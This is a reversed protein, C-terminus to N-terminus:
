ESSLSALGGDDVGILREQFCSIPIPYAAISCKVCVDSRPQGTLVDRELPGGCSVCRATEKKMLQFLDLDGTDPMYSIYGACYILVKKWYASKLGLVAELISTVNYSHTAVLKVVSGRLVPSFEVEVGQVRSDSFDEEFYRFTDKSVMKRLRIKVGKGKVRKEFYNSVATRLVSYSVVSAQVFVGYVAYQVDNRVAKMETELRLNKVQCNTLLQNVEPISARLEDESIYHCLAFDMLNHGYVWDKQGASEAGTRVHGVVDVYAEKFGPVVKMFASALYHSYCGKNVFRFIPDPVDIEIRLQYMKERAAAIREIEEVSVPPAVKRNVIAQVLAKIPKGVKDVDCTSCSSGAHCDGRQTPTTLCYPIPVYSRAKLYGTWLTLKPNSYAHVEWPFIYDFTKESVLVDLNVNPIEKIRQLWRYWTGNPVRGVFRYKDQFYARLLLSFAPRGVMGIFNSLLIEEGSIAMRKGWNLLRAKHFVKDLNRNGYNTYGRVEAFQLTTSASPLLSTNHSVLGDAIYTNGDPVVLDYTLTDKEYEIAVVTIPTNWSASLPETTMKKKKSASLFGITTAYVAQSEPNNVITRFCFKSKVTEVVAGIGCSELLRAVDLAVFKSNVEVYSIGLDPDTDGASEFFGQLYARRIELKQGFIESPILGTSTRGGGYFRSIGNAVNVSYKDSLFERFDTVEGFATRNGAAAIFGLAIAVDQNWQVGQNGNEGGEILLTPSMLADGVQLKKAPVWEGNARRFKHKPTCTVNRGNSLILRITEAKGNCYLQTADKLEGHENFVRVGVLPKYEGPVMLRDSDFSGIPVYGNSTLVRTDHSVCFSIRIFCKNGMEEKIRQVKEAFHCWEDIDADTELMTIIYYLKIERAGQVMMERIVKLIEWERLNKNLYARQRESIGEVGLTFNSKKLYRQVHIQEPTEALMDVRQSILGVQYGRRVSEKVLPFLDTYQNFNLSFFSVHKTGLNTTAVELAELVKDVGRERYPGESGERCFGCAGLGQSGICGVSNHVLLGGAVYNEQDRVKLDYAMFRGSFTISSVEVAAWGDQFRGYSGEARISYTELREQKYKTSFGVLDRFKLWSGQGVLVVRYSEKCLYSSGGKLHEKQDVGFHSYIGLDLLLKQVVLMLKRNTSAISIAAQSGKTVSGDGTFLGRLYAAKSAETSALIVKAPEERCKLGLAKLFDRLTRSCVEQYFYGSRQHREGFEVGFLTELIGVYKEQLDEEHDAILIKLGDPHFSGHAELYGFVEAFEPSMAQPLSVEKRKAPRGFGNPRRADCAHYPEQGQVEKERVMRVVDSFSPEVKSSTGPVVVLYDGEELEAVTKFGALRFRNRVCNREKTAYAVEHGATVEINYGWGTELVYFDRLGNEWRRDVVKLGDLTVVFDGAEVKSIEKLGESTSVLTDGTFCGAIAVDVEGGDGTYPLFGNELTRVTNLDKVTARKVPFEYKEDIPAIETIRGDGDYTVRYKDPEYYGPVKGHMSELIETKTLGKRKGEKLLELIVPISIEGDGYVVGDVMYGYESGDAFVHTGNIPETTGSNAGGLFILPIDSREMRQQKFIPVGSEYLQPVLNLIEMRVAHSILLIDFAAPGKKTTTGFWAPFGNSIIRELDQISPAFSFDVYVGPVEKAIQAIMAHSMSLSVANYTSLRCVLVRLEATSFETIDQYGWEGGIYAEPYEFTHLNAELYKILPKGDIVVPPTLTKREDFPLEPALRLNEKIFNGGTLFTGEQSEELTQNEDNYLSEESDDNFEQEEVKLDEIV